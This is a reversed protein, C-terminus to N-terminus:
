RYHSRRSLSMFAVQDALRYVKVTGCSITGINEPIARVACATLLEQALLAM